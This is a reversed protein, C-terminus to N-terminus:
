QIYYRLAAIQAALERACSIPLLTLPTSAGMHTAEIGNLKAMQLSRLIHFDNTIFAARGGAVAEKSNAFNEYTSIAKDELLIRDEEIGHLMLYYAMAQAESITEGRGQGGSVVATANRNQNMYEVTKELRRELVESPESGNLGAGLVIVYDETYTVTDMHGFVVIGASYIILTIIGFVFLGKLFKLFGKQRFAEYFTCWLIFFIGMAVSLAEGLGMGTVAGYYLGLGSLILGIILLIFRM